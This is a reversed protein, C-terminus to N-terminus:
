GLRGVRVIIANRRANVLGGDDRRVITDSRLTLTAYRVLAPAYCGRGERKVENVLPTRPLLIRCSRRYPTRPLTSKPISQNTQYSPVKSCAPKRCNSKPSM